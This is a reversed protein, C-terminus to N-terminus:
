RTLVEQLGEIAAKTFVIHRSNLLQYPTVQLNAILNIEALNRSAMRLNPNEGHDVLLVKRKLGLKNLSEALPKTRHTELSFADVVSLESDRLKVTLASKLAARFM